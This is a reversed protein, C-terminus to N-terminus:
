RRGRSRTPRAACPGAPGARPPSRRRPTAAVRRRVPEDVVGVGQEGHGVQHEDVRHRGPVAARHLAPLGLVVVAVALVDLLDGLQDPQPAGTPVAPHRGLVHDALGVAGGAGDPHGLPEPALVRHGDVAEDQDGAHEVEAALVELVQAVVLGAQVEQRGVGRDGVVVAQM